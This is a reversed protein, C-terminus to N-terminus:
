QTPTLKRIKQEIEGIRDSQLQDEIEDNRLFFLAEQYQDLARRANGKFEAKEAEALYGNLETTHIFRRIMHELDDLTSNDVGHENRAEDIKLVAKTAESITTRPTARLEAKTLIKQVESKIHDTVIEQREEIYASRFKSPPPLTTTIGKQEYPILEGAIRIIDDCRGLRTKLTKGAKVLQESEQLIQWKRMVVPVHVSECVNCMGNTSVRLLWGSKGCWKCAAM